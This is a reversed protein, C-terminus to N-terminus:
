LSEIPRSPHEGRSPLPDESGLRRHPTLAGASPRRRGERGDRLGGQGRADVAPLGTVPESLKGDTGVVRLRGPRETVLMKGGPLFALGWPWLGALVGFGIMFLPFFIRQFSESFPVNELALLSFTGLGSEVYVALLAVWVLVSGAVLYMMLKM